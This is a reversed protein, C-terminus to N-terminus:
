KAAAAIAEDGWDAKPEPETFLFDGNSAPKLLEGFRVILEGHASLKISSCGNKVALQFITAIDAKAFKSPRRM